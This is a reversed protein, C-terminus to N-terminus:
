LVEIVPKLFERTRSIKTQHRALAWNKSFPVKGERIAFKNIIVLPIDCNIRVDALYSMTVWFLVINTITVSTTSCSQFTKM